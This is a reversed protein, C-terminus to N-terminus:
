DEEIWRFATAVQREDHNLHPDGGNAQADVVRQRVMLVYEPTYEETVKAMLMYRLALEEYLLATRYLEVIAVGDHLEVEEAGGRTVGIFRGCGVSISAFAEDRPM